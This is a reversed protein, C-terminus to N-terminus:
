EDNEGGTSFISFGAVPRGDDTYSRAITRSQKPDAIRLRLYWVPPTASRLLDLVYSMTVTGQPSVTFGSQRLSNELAASFADSHEPTILRISTHGPPYLSALYDTADDAIPAAFGDPIKGVYSGGVSYRGACGTLLGCLILVVFMRIM